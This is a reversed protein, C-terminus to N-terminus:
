ADGVRRITRTRATLNAQTYRPYADGRDSKELAALKDRVPTGGNWSVDVTVGTADHDVRHVYGTHGGDTDDLTIQEGVRMHPGAVVPGREAVTFRDRGTAMTPHGDDYRIEWAGGGCCESISAVVRVQRAATHITDGPRIDGVPVNTHEM